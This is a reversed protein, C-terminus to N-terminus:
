DPMDIHALEVLRVLDYFRRPNLGTKKQIRDIRYILTNRHLYLKEAARTASMDSEALVLITKKDEESLRYM